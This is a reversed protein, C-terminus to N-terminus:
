AAERDDIILSVSINVQSLMKVLMDITFLDIKGKLLNNIRPQTVGFIKAAKTQTLQNKKIYREIEQMLRARIKLNASEDESFNLDDFVSGKTIHVM